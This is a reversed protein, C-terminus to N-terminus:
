QVVVEFRVQKAVKDPAIPRVYVFGLTEKGRKKATYRFLDHGGSGVVGPTAADPVYEPQKGVLALSNGKREKTRWGYGTTANGELRVTFKDGVHLTITKGADADGVTTTRDRPNTAAPKAGTGGRNTVTQCSALCFAASVLCVLLLFRTQTSM